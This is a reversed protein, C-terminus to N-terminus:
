PWRSAGLHTHEPASIVPYAVRQGANLILQNVRVAHQFKLVELSYALRGASVLFSPCEPWDPPAHYVLQRITWSSSHPVYSSCHRCFLHYFVHIMMMCSLPIPHIDAGIRTMRMHCLFYGCTAAQICKCKMCAKIASSSQSTRPASMDICPQTFM